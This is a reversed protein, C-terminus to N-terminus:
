RVPPMGNSYKSIILCPFRHIHPSLDIRLFMIPKNGISTNCSDIPFKILISPDMRLHLLDRVFHKLVHELIRDFLYIFSYIYIYRSRLLAPGLGATAWAEHPKATPCNLIAPDFNSGDM